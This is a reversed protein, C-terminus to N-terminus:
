RATSFTKNLWIYDIGMLMATSGAIKICGIMPPLKITPINTSITCILVGDVFYNVASADTAVSVKLHHWGATIVSSTTVSTSASASTNRALWTGSNFEWLLNMGNSAANWPLDGSFGVSYRISNSSANLVPLNVLSEISMVGSGVVFSPNASGGFAGATIAGGALSTSTTIELVGPHTQDSKITGGATSFGPSGSAASEWIADGSIQGSGAGYFGTSFDEFLTFTTTPDFAV